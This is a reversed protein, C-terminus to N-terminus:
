LIFINLLILADEIIKLKDVLRKYEDKNKNGNENILKILMDRYCLLGFVSSIPIDLNNTFKSM